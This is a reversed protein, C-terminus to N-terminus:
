EKIYSNNAVSEVFREYESVFDVFGGFLNEDYEANYIENVSRYKGVPVCVSNPLNKNLDEALREPHYDDPCPCILVPIKIQRLSDDSLNARYFGSDGMWKGWNAIIRSFDRNDMGLIKESDKKYLDALWRSIESWRHPPPDESYKVAERMSIAAADAIDFYRAKVIGREAESTTDTPRYMALSKVRDPYLASFLLGMEGGGSCGAIHVSSEGLADLLGALYECALHYESPTDKIVTGSQGCNPGDWIIVRFSRSLRGAFFYAGPNFGGLVSQLYVVTDGKGYAEYMINIDNVYHKPM